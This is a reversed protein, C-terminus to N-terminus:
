DDIGFFRGIGVLRDIALACVIASLVLLASFASLTPDLNWQM